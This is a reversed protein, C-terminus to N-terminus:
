ETTKFISAIHIHHFLPFMYIYTYIYVYRNDHLSSSGAAPDVTVARKHQTKLYRKAQKMEETELKSKFLAADM